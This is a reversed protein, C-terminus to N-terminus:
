HNGTAHLDTDVQAILRECRDILDVDRNMRGSGLVEHLSELIHKRDFESAATEDKQRLALQSLCDLATHYHASHIQDRASIWLAQNLGGPYMGQFMEEIEHREYISELTPMHQTLFRLMVRNTRYAPVFTRVLGMVERLLQWIWSLNKPIQSEAEDILSRGVLFFQELAESSSRSQLEEYRPRYLKVLYLNEQLQRLEHYCVGIILDCLREHDRWKEEIGNGDPRFAAHAHKRLNEFYQHSLDEIARARPIVGSSEFERYLDRFEVYGSFLLRFFRIRDYDLLRNKM